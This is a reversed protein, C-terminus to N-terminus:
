LLTTASFKRSDKSPLKIRYTGELVEKPVRSTILSVPTIFDKMTDVPLVGCCMMEARSNAFSPFM